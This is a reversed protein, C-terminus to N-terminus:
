ALGKFYAVTRRLGEDFSVGPQWGLKERALSIDPRRRTPDDSPLDHFAIGSSSGTLAIVKRAVDVMTYEEPNGLNVPGQFGECGMMAELGEVMDDVYCFSRTQSGDGYVTLDQGALAQSIFNTVVRGDDHRMHPGYTNFIRVVRIDVEYQRMYDFFLAEAARKGEDYCSRIGIPNVNGWYGETQPHEFPDGYVESTSAQLIRAGTRRALELVNMAGLVNTRMTGIPDSQYFPPSAPCALNYIYRVDDLGLFTATDTVDAEVFTFNPANTIQANNSKFGSVLNDICLVQEGSNVLRNCLNSGIFGAGGTVLVVGDDRNVCRDRM